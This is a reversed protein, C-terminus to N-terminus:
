EVTLNDIKVDGIVVTVLDGSKVYQGPNAFIIFYHKGEKPPRTQRLSGVKPSSPVGFVAGSKQHLLYPKVQRSFLPAAKEADIVKYRFDLMYGNASLRIALTEIGGAGKELAEGARENMVPSQIAHQRACGAVFFLVISLVAASSGLFKFDGRAKDDHFEGPAPSHSFLASM